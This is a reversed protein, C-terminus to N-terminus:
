IGLGDEDVESEAEHLRDILLKVENNDKPHLDLATTFHMMAERPRGMKKCVKGMMIYVAPEKPAADVVRRLEQLATQYHASSMPPWLICPTSFPSSAFSCCAALPPPPSGLRVAYEEQEFYIWALQFHAQPNNPQLEIATHLYRKSDDFKKSKALVMGMYCRLVSSRSNIRLASKFHAEAMGYKEQRFYIQGLGFWANHHRADMRLAHRYMAFAKDFDENAVFEHGSLTYAYTFTPDVQIARKFFKLAQEHDKQLSFCNGVACWVEPSRRNHAAVEQASHRHVRPM